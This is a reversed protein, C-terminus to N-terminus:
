APGLHASRRSRAPSIHGAAPHGFHVSSAFHCARRALMEEGTPPLQTVPDRYVAETAELPDPLNRIENTSM